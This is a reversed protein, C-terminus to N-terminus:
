FKPLFFGILKSNEIAKNNSKLNGSQEVKHSTAIAKHGTAVEGVM